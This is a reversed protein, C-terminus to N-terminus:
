KRTRIAYQMEEKINVEPLFFPFHVDLQNNNEIYRKVTDIKFKMRHYQTHNQEIYTAAEAAKSYLIIPDSELLSDAKKLLQQINSVFYVHDNNRLVKDLRPVILEVTPVGSSIEFFIRNSSYYDSYSYPNGGVIIRGRQFTEQQFNFPVHGQASDYSWGNGFLGLRKGYRRDLAKILENRHLAGWWHRHMLNPFRPKNNSGIFVVDFDFSHKELEIKKAHFRVQCMSNPTYVVNKAGWRIMKDAAKGMQTSFTIDALRSAEKFSNPYDPVMFNDSFGDGSSTIVIPRNPLVLLEEICKRPSPIENSHFYHFYVIHVKEIKCLKVVYKYFENWGYQEAYSLFPINIFDDIEHELNLKELSDQWGPHDNITRGQSLFLLKM